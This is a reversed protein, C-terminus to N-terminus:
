KINNKLFESFAENGTDSLHVKDVMFYDEHEELEKSFDLVTVNEKELEFNEKISVIFVEQEEMITALEEYQENSLSFQNDFALVVKHTLTQNEVANKIIEKLEEYTMEKQAVFNADKFDNHLKEFDNLLLDNGYFTIKNKLEEEYKQLKEENQKRYDEVYAQYISDYIAKTYEKRGLATLHIGDAYFYEEKGKSIEAWDVIYLNDYEKSLKKLKDNVHVKSDNTVTVWFIKRNGSNKIMKIKLSESCDGNTGLALIIVEGLSNKEKLEELIDNGAWVSRSVKADFYSNPFEGYLNPVAGLMVSDGIGVISLKKVYEKLAEEGNELEKLVKKWEEKEQQQKKQFEKQKQFAVDENEKLQEELMKMEQTYDKAIVYQYGGYCSILTFLVLFVYGVIKELLFKRKKSLALHLFYSIVFILILLLPIKLCMELNIEQFFYIVPYQVLYIEYSFSGFFKMFKDMVTIKKTSKQTGYDILRCSIFTIFLMSFAFYKSDAQLFIFLLITILVYGYFFVRNINKKQFIKVGYYHHVFGLTVGFLLSFIRMFTDYYSLMRNTDVNQYFYFYGIISLLMLLICPLIKLVKDGLKKFLMFLFPFVLEFQLLISIYWLHIFPSNLSSTFYDTKTGLQWFNNYGLLVSTTEPKLNLWSINPLLSVIAIVSFVVMVLPLYIKLFKNKYYAFISFKEKQFSSICSLYGSLVFFICVALFGGNLLQFHYALVAICALVRIMNIDKYYINKM